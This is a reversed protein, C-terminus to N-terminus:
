ANKSKASKRRSAAFGLLGLGLLAVTTPEPVAAAGTVFRIDDLMIYDGNGQVMNVSKILSGNGNAGIFGAYPNTQAAINISGLLVNVDNFLSMQWSRDAAGWNFGFASVPDAFTMTFSQGATAKVSNGTTAYSGSFTNNLQLQVASSLTVAGNGFTHSFFGATPESNFDILSSGSLSVDGASTLLIPAANAASISATFIVVATIISKILMTSPKRFQSTLM